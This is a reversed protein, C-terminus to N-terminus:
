GAPQQILELKGRMLEELDQEVFHHDVLNDIM